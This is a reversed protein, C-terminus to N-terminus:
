SMVHNASRSMRSARAARGYHEQLTRRSAVLRDGAGSLPRSYFCNAKGRGAMAQRVLREREAKCMLGQYYESKTSHDQWTVLV